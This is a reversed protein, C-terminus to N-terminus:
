QKQCSKINFQSLRKLEIYFEFNGEKTEMEMFCVKRFNSGKLYIKGPYIYVSLIDTVDIVKKERISTITAKDNDIIIQYPEKSFYVKFFLISMLTLVVFIMIMRYAFSLIFEESIKENFIDLKSKGVRERYFYVLLWIIALVSLLLFTLIIYSHGSVEILQPKDFFSQTIISTVDIKEKNM